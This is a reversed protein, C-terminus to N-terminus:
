RGELDKRRKGNIYWRETGDFDISAPGDLRHLEDNELWLMRGGTYIVAPKGGDRHRKGEKYWGLSGDNSVIAPLDWGRHLRQDPRAWVKKDGIIMRPPNVVEFIPLLLPLPVERVEAPTMDVHFPALCAEDDCPRWEGNYLLHSRATM